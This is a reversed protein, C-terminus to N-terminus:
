KMKNKELALDFFKFPIENFQVFIQDIIRVKVNRLTAVGINEFIFSIFRSFGFHKLKNQFPM